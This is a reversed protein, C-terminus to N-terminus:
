TRVLFPSSSLTIAPSVFLGQSRLLHSGLTEKSTSAAQSIPSSNSDVELPTLKGSWDTLLYSASTARIRRLAFVEPGVSIVLTKSEADLAIATVPFPGRFRDNVTGKVLKNGGLDIQYHVFRGNTLGVYLTSSTEWVLATPTEPTADSIIPHFGALEDLIYLSASDRDGVALFQGSPSFEMFSTFEAPSDVTFTQEYCAM